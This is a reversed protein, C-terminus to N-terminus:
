AAGSSVPDGQETDERLRAYVKNAYYDALLDHFDNNDLIRKLIGDNADMRAVITNM